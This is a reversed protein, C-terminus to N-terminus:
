AVPRKAAHKRLRHSRKGGAIAAVPAAPKAFAEAPSFTFNSGLTLYGDGYLLQTDTLTIGDLSPLPFGNAFIGNVIPIVVDRFTFDLLTQLLSTTVTGVSSSAVSLQADLYELQGMLALSGNSDPGITLEATLTALADLTFATVFSGNHADVLFDLSLPATINAGSGPAITVTPLQAFSFDIDVASDPYALPLGPAVVVYATTTNLGVPLKSSDILWNLVGATFFSYVASVFTYSSLQMQLYNAGSAPNFPPLTPSPIPPSVPNAVPVVDGQLGVGAYSSTFTPNAILGFRIESINYPARLHLPYETAM